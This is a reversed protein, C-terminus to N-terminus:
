PLFETKEAGLFAGMIDYPKELRNGSPYFSFPNNQSKKHEPDDEWTLQPSLSSGDSSSTGIGTEELWTFQFPCKM